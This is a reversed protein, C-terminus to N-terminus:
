IPRRRHPDVPPRQAELRDVDEDEDPDQAPEQETRDNRDDVLPPSRRGLNEGVRLRRLFLRDRRALRGLLFAGSDRRGPVVHQALGGLVALRWRAAASATRGRPLRDSARRPRFRFASSARPRPFRRRRDSPSARPRCRRWSAPAAARNRPRRRSRRRAPSPARRMARPWDRRSRRRSAAVTPPAAASRRPSGTRGSRKRRLARGAREIENDGDIGAEDGPELELRRVGDDAVAKAVIEGADDLLQGAM